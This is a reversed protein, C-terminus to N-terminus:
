VYDGLGDLYELDPDSGGWGVQNLNLPSLMQAVRRVEAEALQEESLTESLSTGGHVGQRYLTSFTSQSLLAQLSLAVGTAGNGFLYGLPSAAIGNIVETAYGFEVGFAEMLGDRIQARQISALLGSYTENTAISAIVEGVRGTVASGLAGGVASLVKNLTEEPVLAESGPAQPGWWTMEAKGAVIDWDDDPAAM